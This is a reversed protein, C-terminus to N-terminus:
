IGPPKCTNPSDLRAPPQTNHNTISSSSTPRRPPVEHRNTATVGSAAASWSQPHAAAEGALYRADLDDFAADIDDRDFLVRATIREDANIEFVRLMETQFPEPRQDDGSLSVLSLILREGRTAIVKSTM